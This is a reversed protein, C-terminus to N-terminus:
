RGPFVRRIKKPPPLKLEVYGTSFSLPKLGQLGRPKMALSCAAFRVFFWVNRYSHFHAPETSVAGPEFKNGACALTNAARKSISDGRTLLIFKPGSATM